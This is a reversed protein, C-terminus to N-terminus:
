SSNYLQILDKNYIVIHIQANKIFFFMKITKTKDSISFNSLNLYKLKNCEFFMYGMNNVNSTDFNSLDLSELEYCNSFMKHMDEVNITIFKNLGKIEKLRKCEFFMCAMNTINSTNFNSLDLSELENCSYFMYQVNKLKDTNFKNIGKIEKLKECQNFLFSMDIVNSTDFNSLDLIELKTCSQFMGEMYKTEKTVFKNIGGIKILNSCKNFIYKMNVTNSTDFNSLDIEELKYCDSFMGEMILVKNTKFKEIGKIQELEHCHFFLYSMNTTNSTDFDSLDLYKLKYCYSFIGSMDSVKNKKFLKLGKIEKLKKCESFMYKMKAVNSPNSNSLYLSVINCCKEFFGSMNKIIDLFVIKFSYKGDEKFHDNSIKWTNDEKIMEIKNNNLYVDINYKEDTKFLIIGSNDKSQQIDLIGEIVYNNELNFISNCYKELIEKDNEVIEKIGNLLTYINKLQLFAYEFNILSNCISDIQFQIGSIMNKINIKSSILKDINKTDLNLKEGCKPCVVSYYINEFVIINMNNNGANISNISKEYTLDLNLQKGGYLFILSNMNKNIKAAFKQCINEMKDEKSCQVKVEEGNFTFLARVESM